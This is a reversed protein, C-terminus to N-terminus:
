GGGFLARAERHLEDETATLGELKAMVIRRLDRRAQALRNTVTTAPVGLERGIQEYTPRKEDECLDYREFVAFSEHGEDRLAEVASSLLARYWERDFIEEPSAGPAHALEAEAAAFDYPVVVADGGRKVRAHAKEENSVFRDLCVRFFTRFRGRTPDYSSFVDGAVARAFFSQTLDDAEDPSKRWRVRLHKYTPRWYAAAIAAWSRRREPEVESRMGAIASWHTTPFGV